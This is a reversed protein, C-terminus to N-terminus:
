RAAERGSQCAICLAAEPRAKLRAYGVDEGCGICEGYEADDIRRLASESQALRQRAANRNAELMKQQQMADMRSLRGIPEDLDVPKAGDVTNEIQARLQEALAVLDASLEKLESDSLGPM